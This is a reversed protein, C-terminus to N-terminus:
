VCSIKLGGSKCRPLKCLTYDFIHKVGSPDSGGCPDTGVEVEAFNRQVDDGFMDSRIFVTDADRPQILQAVPLEQPGMARNCIKPPHPRPIRFPQRLVANIRHPVDRAAREAARTVQM